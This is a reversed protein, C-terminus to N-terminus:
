VQLGPVLRRVVLIARNPHYEVSFNIVESFKLRMQFAESMGEVGGGIRLRDDMQILFISRVAHLVQAAHEGKSEPISPSPLQQQRPVSQSDLRQIIGHDAPPEEKCRLQLCKQLHRLEFAFEIPASDIM